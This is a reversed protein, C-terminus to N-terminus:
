HGYNYRVNRFKDYKYEVPQLGDIMLCIDNATCNSVAKEFPGYDVPIHSSRRWSIPNPGNKPIRFLKGQFMISYRKNM